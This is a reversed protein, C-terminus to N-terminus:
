VEEKEEKDEKLRVTYRKETSIYAKVRERIKESWRGEKVARELAGTDLTAVEDWVGLARLEGELAAREESGKGPSVMAERGTVRLQGRTGAIVSVGEREAFKIAADRLEELGKGVVEAEAEIEQKKRHLEAFADVIVVGPEDKWREKALAEVKVLHKKAPCLEWYSCWDCRTSEYPGYEKEAEIRDVLGTIEAKFAELQEPTRTSKMDLDFTAMHWVLRVAKAEPWLSQVGVQYLALQRDKDVDAQTPLSSTTKYDHIEFVGDPALMLRDIVGKFAYSKGQELSFRIKRELGLVKGETFPQHRRYYDEIFKRGRAQYEDATREKNVIKVGEHWAAKWREEYFALVEELPVERFARERYLWQMAEHFRQGLFAEVGETVRRIRDVYVFKYQLRCTEFTGIQSISYEAM